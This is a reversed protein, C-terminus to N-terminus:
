RPSPKPSRAELGALILELIETRAPDVADRYADAEAMLQALERKEIGTLKEDHKKNILAMRRANKEPSWEPVNGNARVAPLAELDMAVLQFLPQLRAYVHEPVLAYRKRSADSRVIVAARRGNELQDLQKDSVHIPM